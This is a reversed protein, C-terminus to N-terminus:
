LPTLMPRRYPTLMGLRNVAKGEAEKKALLEEAIEKFTNGGAIRQAKEIKAAVSPDVGTARLAKAEDRRKRAEALTTAPYAGCSLTKEKGGFRHKMQWLKSGNPKVLLYLGGGDARKYPKEASKANRTATDTLSM